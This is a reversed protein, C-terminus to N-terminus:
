ALERDFLALLRAWAREAQAEDYVWSDPPCWGHQAPYVEVEAAVGADEFSKSLVSKAEPQKEDDNQAIAILLGANVHDALLHPSSPKDTVLGGGHFSGGAGIRDPMDAALRIVYSGTMCYGTTGIKRNTDVSPQADMYKVYDRGDLVCTEPTLSLYHPILIERIEPNNYGMGEPTIRGNVTRYYPNVVLVSYGSQALRKGMARFSPRISMIDPWIIVAAHQGTAPHVLYCDSMEGGSMPVNVEQEVVDLANVVAPLAMMLTAAAGAQAFERRTIGAKGALYEENSQQTDENCM